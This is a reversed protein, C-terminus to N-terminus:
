RAPSEHERALFDGLREELETRGGTGADLSGDLVSLTIYGDAFLATDAMAISRDIPNGHELAIQVKGPTDTEVFIPVFGGSRAVRTMRVGKIGAGPLAPYNVNLLKNAPLLRTGARRTREIERLLHVTFAAALTFAGMTSPFRVPKADREELNIGVSVAIAPVGLQAAMIAAGVTGSINTNSGLNQGFNAGSIVIDPPKDRLLKLLAFSVSDAPTGVVTWFDKEIHDVVISGISVRMSSGSQQDRPAVVSVKYGGAVLGQRMAKIGPADYGDDNTLLVHLPSGNAAAGMHLLAALLFIGRLLIIYRLSDIRRRGPLTRM